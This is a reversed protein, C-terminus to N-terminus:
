CPRAGEAAQGGPALAGLVARLTAPDFGRRVRVVASGSVVELPTEVAVLGLPVFVATKAKRAPASPKEALRRRWAYFAPESLGERRCFAAVSLGSERWTQVALGWFARREAREQASKGPSDRRAEARRKEQKEVM